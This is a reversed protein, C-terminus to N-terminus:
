IPQINNKKKATAKLLRRSKQVIAVDTILPKMTMAGDQDWAAIEPINNVLESRIFVTFYGWLETASYSSLPKEWGYRAWNM